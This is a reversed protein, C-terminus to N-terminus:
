LISLILWALLALYSGLVASGAILLELLVRMRKPRPTGAIWIAECIIENFGSRQGVINVNQGILHRARSSAVLQWKGGDVHLVLGSEEECLRGCVYLEGSLPMNARELIPGVAARHRDPEHYVVPGRWEAALVLRRDTARRGDGGIPM